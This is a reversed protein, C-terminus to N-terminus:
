EFINMEEKSFLSSQLLSEFINGPSYLAHYYLGRPSLLIFYKLIIYDLLQSSDQIVHMQGYM